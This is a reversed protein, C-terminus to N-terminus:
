LRMWGSGIVSLSPGAFGAGVQKRWVVSPGTPPWSEALPPGAYVGNRSPGLFQPWDAALLAGSTAVLAVLTAATGAHTVRM